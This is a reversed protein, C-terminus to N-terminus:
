KEDKTNSGINLMKCLMAVQKDTLLLSQHILEIKQDLLKLADLFDKDNM